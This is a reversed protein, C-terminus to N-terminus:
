KCPWKSKRRRSLQRTYSTDSIRWLNQDRVRKMGEPALRKPEDDGLLEPSLISDGELMGVAAQARHRDIPRIANGSIRVDADTTPSRAKPNLIEHREGLQYRGTPPSRVSPLGPPTM